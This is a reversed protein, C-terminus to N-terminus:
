ASESYIRNACPLKLVRPLLQPKVATVSEWFRFRRASPPTTKLPTISRGPRKAFVKMPASSSLTMRATLGSLTKMGKRDVRAGRFSLISTSTCMPQGAKKQRSAPFTGLCFARIILTAPLTRQWSRIHAFLRSGSWRRPFFFFFYSSTYFFRITTLCVREVLPESSNCSCCRRASRAWTNTSALRANFLVASRAGM